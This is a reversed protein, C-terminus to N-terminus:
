IYEFFHCVQAVMIGLNALLASIKLFLIDPLKECFSNLVLQIIIVFDEISPTAHASSCQTNRHNGVKEIIVLLQSIDLHKSCHKTYQVSHRGFVLTLTAIMEEWESPFSHIVGIDHSIRFQEIRPTKDVDSCLEILMEEAFGCSTLKLQQRHSLVIFITRAQPHNAYTGSTTSFNIRSSAVITTATSVKWKSARNTVNCNPTQECKAFRTMVTPMELMDHVPKRLVGKTWCATAAM